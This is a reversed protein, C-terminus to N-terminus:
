DPATESKQNIADRASTLLNFIVQELRNLHGLV